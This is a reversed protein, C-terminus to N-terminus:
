YTHDEAAFVLPLGATQLMTILSADEYGCIRTFVIPEGVEIRFSFNSECRYVDGAKREIFAVKVGEPTPSPMWGWADYVGGYQSNSPMSNGDMMPLKMHAHQATKAIRCPFRRIIGLISRIM